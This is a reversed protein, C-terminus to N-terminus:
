SDQFLGSWEPQVSRGPHCHSGSSACDARAGSRHEACGEEHGMHSACTGPAGDTAGRLSLPSIFRPVHLGRPDRHRLSVPPPPELLLPSGWTCLSGTRPPRVISGVGCCGTSAAGHLCLAPPACLVELAMLSQTFSHHPCANDDMTRKDSSVSHAVSCM